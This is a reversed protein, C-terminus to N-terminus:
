RGPLVLGSHGNSGLAERRAHQEEIYRLTESQGAWRAIVTTNNNLQEVIHHLAQAMKQNQEALTQIQGDRPETAQVILYEMHAIALKRELMVQADIRQWHESKPDTFITAADVRLWLIIRARLWDLLRRM